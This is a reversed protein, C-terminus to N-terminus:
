LVDGEFAVAIIFTMMKDVELRIIIILKSRVVAELRKVILQSLLTDLGM